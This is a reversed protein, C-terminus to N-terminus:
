FGGTLQFMRGQKKRFDSDQKVWALTGTKPLPKDTKIGSAGTLMGLGLGIYALADVFDDNRHYPFKLVQDLADGFWPMHEPFYVKGMAMRGQISQARTQKDAAPTVEHVNIFVSEELMRRRLFPGISKSIHGREAWWVLPKHRSMMSLMAEVVEDSSKKDWWCDLLYINNKEDVGATLLVTADNSQKVGVAHDSSTYKRLNKSLEHPKYTKIWDSKFFVGEEPTPRQQYLASFGRPNMRRQMEGFEQPYRSPWLVEGVERGMPDDELAFFPLDIVKWQKAEQENYCPNLPDTIRGVIDDEHWRTMVIIVRPPVGDTTSMLRTMAVRTFWEWTKQRLAPSQAEEDDKFPDDVILINAGRGTISGGRGVFAAQGGRSTQILHKSEGGKRFKIDPFMVRYNKSKMIERVESGFDGSFEENYTTFIVQTDPRRGLAWAILRKSVLESKGHRPPLTLILRPYRGAEVEELAAAMVKHHQAAEYRSKNPNSPEHIDPMTLQTFRLLSEQGDLMARKFLAAELRKQMLDDEHQGDKDATKEFM